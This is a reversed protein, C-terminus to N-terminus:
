RENLRDKLEKGVKFFPLKKPKVKINGGTKPNRGIYGPYDKVSFSCWGRVEVREGEALSDTISQFFTDVVKQAQPKTIGTVARLRETLEHKNM